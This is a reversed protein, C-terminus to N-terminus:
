RGLMWALAPGLSREMAELTHGYGTQIQFRLNVGQAGLREALVQAPALSKREGIGFDGNSIWIRGGGKWGTTLALVAEVEPGHWPSLLAAGEWLDPEGLLLQTAFSAGNSFAAIWWREAGPYTRRVWPMVFSWVWARAAQNRAGGWLYESPRESGGHDLAVIIVPPIEGRHRLTDTIRPLWGGRDVMIQADPVLLVPCRQGPAWGPPVWVRVRRQGGALDPAGLLLDADLRSPEGEAPLPPPVAPGILAPQHRHSDMGQGARGVGIMTCITPPLLPAVLDAGWVATGPIQTLSQEDPMWEGQCAIGEPGPDGEWLVTVTGDPQILPSRLDPTLRSPDALLEAFTPM